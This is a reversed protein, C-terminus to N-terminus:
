KLLSRLADAVELLTELSLIEEGLLLTNVDWFEKDSSSDITFYVGTHLTWNIGTSMVGAPEDMDVISDARRGLFLPKEFAIHTENAEDPNFKDLLDEIDMCAAEYLKNYAETNTMLFNFTAM